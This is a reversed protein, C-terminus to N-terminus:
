AEGILKREYARNMSSLRLTKYSVQLGPRVVAVSAKDEGIAKRAKWLAM